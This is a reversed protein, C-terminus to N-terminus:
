HPTPLENSVQENVRSALEPEVPLKLFPFPITGQAWNSPLLGTEAFQADGKRADDQAIVGAQRREVEDKM